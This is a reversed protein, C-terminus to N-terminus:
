KGGKEILDRAVQLADAVGRTVARSTVTAGSLAQIDGKRDSAKKVVQLGDAASLGAYKGLFDADRARTGLGPTENMSVMTLGKLTGDPGIGAILIIKGGYGKPAVSVAYGAFQGGTTGRYVASVTSPVTIGEASIEKPDRAEDFADADPLVKRLATEQEQAASARIIPDTVQYVVALIATIILGCLFLVLTPRVIEANMEKRTMAPKSPKRNKEAVGIV